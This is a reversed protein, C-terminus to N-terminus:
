KTVGLIPHAGGSKEKDIFDILENYPITEAIYEVPTLDELEFAFLTDKRREENLIIERKM